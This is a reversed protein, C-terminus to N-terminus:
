MLQEVTIFLEYTSGAPNGSPDAVVSYTVPVGAKVQVVTTTNPSFVGYTGTGV